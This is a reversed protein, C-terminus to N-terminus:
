DTAIAVLVQRSLGARTLIVATLTGGAGRCGREVRDGRGFGCSLAALRFGTGRVFDGSRGFAAAPLRGLRVRVAHPPKIRRIEL